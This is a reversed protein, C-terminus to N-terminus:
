SMRSRARAARLSSPWGGLSRASRSDGSSNLASAALSHLEDGARGPLHVETEQEAAEPVVAAVLEHRQDLRDREGVLHRQGIGLAILDDARPHIPRVDDSARQLSETRAAPITRGDPDLD